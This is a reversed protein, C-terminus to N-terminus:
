GVLNISRGQTSNQSMGVIKTRITLSVASSSECDEQAAQQEQM